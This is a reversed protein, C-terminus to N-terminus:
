AHALEEAEFALDEDEEAVPEEEQIDDISDVEEFEAVVEASEPDEAEQAKLEASSVGPEGAPGDFDLSEARDKELRKREKERAEVETEIDSILTGHIIMANYQGQSVDLSRTKTAQFLLFSKMEEVRSSIKELIRGWREDTSIAKASMALLQLSVGDLKSLPQPEDGNDDLLTFYAPHFETDQFEEAIYQLLLTYGKINGQLVAIDRTKGCTELDERAKRRASIARIVLENLFTSPM